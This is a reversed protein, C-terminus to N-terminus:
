RPPAPPFLQLMGRERMLKEVDDLEIPALGTLNDIGTETVVITDEIRIYLEEEPVRMQPDVSFVMGPVLPGSRYGGVDHVAMGVPHSFAGFVNRAAREYIPKSFKWRALLREIEPAAERQLQEVTVGPRILGLLIKHYEVVFGYLERQQATYKGNVPFMRGMDSTYYGVEAACDMLVLEGDRLQTNNAYYHAYWANKGVATIPRYGEGMAGNVYFVYRAAADLQYEWVGPEASRMAEVVGLASLQGARRLLAVERSSKVSRLRDLIPTLDRIEARSVRSRLLGIFHAERSLAGDWPDNAQRRIAAVIEGRSQYRGEGPSFPTYILRGRSVHALLSDIPHVAEVGTLAMVEAADEASLVRGEARELAPDRRPLYLAARKAQGDLVVYAGPVALGTLYYFENSQRFVEFGRVPPAGQLVAVATPEIAEIVKTRRAVLEDAPVAQGGGAAPLLLSLVIGATASRGHRAM